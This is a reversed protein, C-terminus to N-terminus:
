GSVKKWGRGELNREGDEPAAVCNRYIYVELRKLGGSIRWVNAIRVNRVFFPEKSM